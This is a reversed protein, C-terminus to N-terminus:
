NEGWRVGEENVQCQEGWPRQECLTGGIEWDRRLRAVRLRVGSVPDRRESEAPWRGAGREARLEEGSELCERTFMEGAPFWSFTYVCTYSSKLSHQGRTRPNIGIFLFKNDFMRQVFVVSCSSAKRNRIWVIHKDDAPAGQSVFQTPSATHHTSHAGEM